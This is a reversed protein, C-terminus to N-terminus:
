ALPSVCLTAAAYSVSSDRQSKCQSSQDYNLFKLSYQCDKNQNELIQIAHLILIVPNRGCITNNYQELYNKFKKPDNTEIEDMGMKDLKQISQYIAGWNRDYYQYSFREGWHCFDTSVVFLNEEQNLYESLVRGYAEQRKSNSSSVLIPVIKFEHGEMVKAIYPLHMEISHEDEDTQMDMEEFLGTQLLKQNTEKDIKLNYLPTQYIDATSLACGNLLVHHSPGLIFVRKRCSIYHNSIIFM